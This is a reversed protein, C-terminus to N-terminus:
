RAASRGGISAGSSSAHPGRPRTRPSRLADGGQRRPRFDVGPRPSVGGARGSLSPPSVGWGGRQSSDRPPGAPVEWPSRQLGAALKELLAVAEPNDWQAAGEQRAAIRGDPAIIFTAPIGETLFVPPAGDTRFFNMNWSHGELFAKMSEPAPDTCI